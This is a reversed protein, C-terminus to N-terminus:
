ERPLDRAVSVTAINRGDVRQYAIEDVITRVLHLGLGGESRREPAALVDPPPAASPDFPRGDDAIVVQVRAADISVQVQVRHEQGDDHGWRIVNAVLEDIALRVADIVARSLGARQLFAEVAEALPPLESLRNLLSLALSESM